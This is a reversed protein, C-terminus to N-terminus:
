WVSNVVVVLAVGSGSVVVVVVVVVVLVLALLRIVELGKSYSNWLCSFFWMQLAVSRHYLVFLLPGCVCSRVSSIINVM